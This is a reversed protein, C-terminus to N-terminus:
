FEVQPTACSRGLTPLRLNDLPRLVKGIRGEIKRVLVEETDAKLPVVMLRIWFNARGALVHEQVRDSVPGIRLASGVYRVINSSDATIYVAATFDSWVKDETIQMISAAGPVRRLLADGALDCATIYADPTLMRPRRNM